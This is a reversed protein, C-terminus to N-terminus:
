FLMKRGCLYLPLLSFPFYESFKEAHFDGFLFRRLGRFIVFVKQSDARKGEVEGCSGVCTSDRHRKEQPITRCLVAVRWGKKFTCPINHPLSTRSWSPEFEDFTGELFALVTGFCLVIVVLKKARGKNELDPLHVNPVEDGLLAICKGPRFALSSSSSSFTSSSESSSRHSDLKVVPQSSLAAQWQKM